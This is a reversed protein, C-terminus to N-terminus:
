RRAKGLARTSIRNLEGISLRDIKSFDVPFRKLYSLSSYGVGFGDIALLPTTSHAIILPVGSLLV